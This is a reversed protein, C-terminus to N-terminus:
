LFSASYEEFFTLTMFSLPFYLFLELNFSIFLCSFQIYHTIRYMVSSTIFNSCPRYILYYQILTLNKTKIITSYNHLDNNKKKPLPYLSM